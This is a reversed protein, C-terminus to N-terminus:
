ACISRRFFYVYIKLIFNLIKLSWGNIIRVKPPPPISEEESSVDDCYDELRVPMKRLRFRESVEGVEDEEETQSVSSLSELQKMKQVAKYYM